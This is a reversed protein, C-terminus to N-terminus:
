AQDSTRVSLLFHGAGLKDDDLRHVTIIRVRGSGHTLGGAEVVGTTASKTGSRSLAVAQVACAQQLHSTGEQLVTLQMVELVALGM